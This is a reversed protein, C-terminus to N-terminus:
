MTMGLGCVTVILDSLTTYLPACFGVLGHVLFVSDVAGALFVVGFFM